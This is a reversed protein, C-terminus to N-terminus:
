SVSCSFWNGECIAGESTMGPGWAPNIIQGRFVRFTLHFAVECHRKGNYAKIYFNRRTLYGQLDVAITGPHDWWSVTDGERKPKPVLRGLRDMRAAPDQHVVKGNKFNFDTVWQEVLWSGKPKPDQETSRIAVNGSLGSISVSFGIGYASGASSKAV